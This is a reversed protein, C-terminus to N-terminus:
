LSRGNSLLHGTQRCVTQKETKHQQKKGKMLGGYLGILDLKTGSTWNESDLLCTPLGVVVFFLFAGFASVSSRFIGSYRLCVILFIFMLSTEWEAKKGFETWDLKIQSSGPQKLCSFTSSCALCSQSHKHTHTHTHAQIHTHDGYFCIFM